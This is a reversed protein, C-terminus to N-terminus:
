GPLKWILECAAVIRWRSDPGDVYDIPNAHQKLENLTTSAIGLNSLGSLGYYAAAHGRFEKAITLINYWSIEGNRWLGTARTICYASSLMAGNVYIQYGGDVYKMEEKDVNIFYSPLQLEYNRNLVFANM